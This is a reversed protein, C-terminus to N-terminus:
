RLSGAQSYARAVNNSQRNARLWDGAEDRARRMQAIVSKQLELLSGLGHRSVGPQQLYQRLRQEHEAVMRGALAHDDGQLVQQLRQLDAHLSEISTTSM